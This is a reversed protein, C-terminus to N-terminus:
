TTKMKLYFIKSLRDEEQNSLDSPKLVPLSARPQSQIREKAKALSGNEVAQPSPPLSQSPLGKQLHSIQSKMERMSQELQSVHIFFLPTQPPIGQASFVPRPRDVSELVSSVSSLSSSTQLNVTSTPPHVETENKHDKDAMCDNQVFDVPYLEQHKGECHGNEVPETKHQDVPALSSNCSTSTSLSTCIEVSSKKRDAEQGLDRCDVSISTQNGSTGNSGPLAESVNNVHLEQHIEVEIDQNSEDTSIDTCLPSVEKNLIDQVTTLINTAEKPSDTNQMETMEPLSSEISTIHTLDDDDQDTVHTLKDDGESDSPSLSSHVSLSDISAPHTEAHETLRPTCPITNQHSIEEDSQDSMEKHQNQPLLPSPISTRHPEEASLHSPQIVSLDVHIPSIEQQNMTPESRTPYMKGLLQKRLEDLEAIQKRLESWLQAVYSSGKIRDGIQGDSYDTILPLEAERNLVPM